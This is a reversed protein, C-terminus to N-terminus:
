AADERFRQTLASPSVGACQALRPVSWDAGPDGHIAALATKMMPDRLAGLWGPHDRDAIATRLLEVFLLDSLRKVVTRSGMAASESEEAMMRLLVSVADFREASRVRMMSPLGGILPHLATNKLFFGGCILKVTADGSGADFVLPRRLDRGQVINNMTWRTGGRGEGLTHDHELRLLVLDGASLATTERGMRLVPSGRLVAHFMVVADAGAPTGMIELVRDGRPIPSAGRNPWRAAPLLVAGGPELADLADSLVDDSMRKASDTM